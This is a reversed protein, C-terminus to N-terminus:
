LRKVTKEYTDNYIKELRAKREKEKTEADKAKIARGTPDDMVWRYAKIVCLMLTYIIDKLLFYFNFVFQVLLVYTHIWGADFQAEPTTVFDTYCMTMYLHAGFFLENALEKQNIKLFQYPMVYGHYIGVGLFFLALFIIAIAIHDRM